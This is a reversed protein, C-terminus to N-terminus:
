GAQILQVKVGNPDDLFFFTVGPEPSVVPSPHLGDKEAQTRVAELDDVSFGVFLGGGSYPQEPNEVLEISVTDAPDRLFVISPGNRGAIDLGIVTQYFQVSADLNATFITVHAMKM